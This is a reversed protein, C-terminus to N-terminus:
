VREDDTGVVISAIQDFSVAMYARDYAKEKGQALLGLIMAVTQALTQAM